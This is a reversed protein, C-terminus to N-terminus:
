FGGPAGQRFDIVVLDSPQTRFWAPRHRCRPGTFTCGASFAFCAIGFGFSCGAAGRPVREDFFSSVSEDVSFITIPPTLLTM